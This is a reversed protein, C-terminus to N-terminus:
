RALCVQGAWLHIVRADAGSSDLTGGMEGIAFETGLSTAQVQVQYVSELEARTSGVGIGSATTWAGSGARVFWGVFRDQAFSVTLGDAWTAYTLNCDLNEGQEQPPNGQSTQLINLVDARPTGFPIPRSSGTVADFARLGEGELALVFPLHASDVSSSSADVPDRVADAGFTGGACAGLLLTSILAVVARM